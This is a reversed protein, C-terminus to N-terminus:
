RDAKKLVDEASLVILNAAPYFSQHPQSAYSLAALDEATSEKQIAFTMLDIRGVVPEESTIQAGIVKHSNKDCVLKMKKKKSGPIIPFKTTLNSYGIILDYGAEKASKETLGTSGAYFKGVKTAAGNFFGPYTRNNGLIQHAAIKGMPVANTALKGSIVKGTIGSTFQCCDGVAYVDKVSTEMKENVVIGDRELKVPSNKLLSVEARMGSAFVILGEKGNVTKINITEGNDLIVKSASDTGEIGVVKSNLHLIVGLEKLESELLPSMDKDLMNPLVSDAMDVLHVEIGRHNLAQVLEVGIAGAGVVVAIGEGQGTWQNIVTMDNETKFGMVNKFDHGPVPPIFPEAGTAIVLKEYAITNGSNMKLIKEEFNIENVTDRILDAGPDLVLGDSKLTDKHPILGEIVYPMACYIMSANEPRIIVIDRKGLIKALTIGAPGGGIVVIEHKEM